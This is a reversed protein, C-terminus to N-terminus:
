VKGRFTRFPRNQENNLFWKVYDTDGEKLRPAVDRYFVNLPVSAMRTGVADDRFRRGYSDNFDDQNRAILEDEVLNETKRFGLGKGKDIWYVYHRRLGDESLKEFEWLHDPIRAPDPLSQM